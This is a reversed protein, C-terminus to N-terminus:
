APGAGYRRLPAATIPAVPDEDRVYFQHPDFHEGALAAAAPADGSAILDTLDDHAAVGALRYERDPFEGVVALREAWAKVHALWVTEIAGAVVSLTANGCMSILREHFVGMTQTYALPEDIQRRALTNCRQLAPVITKMRDPREAALAACDAELRKLARGVDDLAVGRSQLVLGLTYAANQEKPRHVIAGGIAGRRVSVLGETELIRLAERMTPKSVRFEALLKEQVPLAGGDHLAGSLIRERLQEAVLEALRPARFNATLDARENSAVSKDARAM